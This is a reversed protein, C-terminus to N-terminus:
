AKQLFGEIIPALEKASTLLGMHGDHFMHLESNPLLRHLMRANVPAIIPDDDGSLILTPQRILPAFPISTWGLVAMQQYLHARLDFRVNRLM